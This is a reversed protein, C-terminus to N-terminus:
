KFGPIDDWDGGYTGNAIADIMDMEDLPEGACESCRIDSRPNITRVEERETIVLDGCQCSRVTSKSIPDYGCKWCWTENPNGAVNLGCNPCSWAM